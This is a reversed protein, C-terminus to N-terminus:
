LSMRSLETGGAKHCCNPSPWVDRIPTISLPGCVKVHINSSTGEIGSHTYINPADTALYRWDFEMTQEKELAM